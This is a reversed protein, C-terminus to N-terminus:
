REMERVGGGVLWVKVPASGLVGRRIGLLESGDPPKLEVM